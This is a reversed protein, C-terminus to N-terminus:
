KRVQMSANVKTLLRADVLWSHVETLSQENYRQLPQILNVCPRLAWSNTAIRQELPERAIDHSLLRAASDRLCEDTQHYIRFMSDRSFM